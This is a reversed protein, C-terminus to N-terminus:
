IVYQAETQRTFIKLQGYAPSYGTIEVNALDTSTTVYKQTLAGLTPGVLGGLMIALFMTWITAQGTLLLVLIFLVSGFLNTIALSTGCRKHIALGKEGNQIRRLGVLAANYIVLPDAFGRILFGDEVAYGSLNTPGYTEELVNVTAHELAHNRRKIKNTAISMFQKPVTLLNILSNFTYGLPILWVLLM